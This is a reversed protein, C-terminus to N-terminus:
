LKYFVKVCNDMDPVLNLKLSEKPTVWAYEDHENEDLTIEPLYALVVRSMHFICDYNPYQVYVKGWYEISEDVDVGTEEFVERKTGALIKEGKNLKGAPLGWLGPLSENKSRKLYLVKGNYELFCSVITFRSRFDNPKNLYIL